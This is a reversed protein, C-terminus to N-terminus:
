RKDLHLPNTTRYVSTRRIRFLNFTPCNLRNRVYCIYKFNYSTIVFMLPVSKQDHSIIASLIKERSLIKALLRQRDQLALVPTSSPGITCRRRQWGAVKGRRFYLPRDWRHVGPSEFKRNSDCDNWPANYIPAQTRSTFNPNM